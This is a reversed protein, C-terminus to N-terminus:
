LMEVATMITNLRVSMENNVNPPGIQDGYCCTLCYNYGLAKYIRTMSM